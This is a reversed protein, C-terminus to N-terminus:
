AATSAVPPLAGGVGPALQTVLLQALAVVVTFLAALKVKLLVAVFLTWVLPLM